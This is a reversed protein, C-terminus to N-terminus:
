LNSNYDIVKLFYSQLEGTNKVFYRCHIVLQETITCDTSEDFMIAMHNSEKLNRLIRIKIVESLISVMEQISKHNTYTANKAVRIKSKVHLGLFELFDLLPEFNTTLVIKQKVLFYLWIFAQHIGNYLVSPNIAGAVSGTRVSENEIRVSDQHASSKEHNLIIQM